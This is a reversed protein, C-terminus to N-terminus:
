AAESMFFNLRFNFQCIYRLLPKMNIFYIKSKINEPIVNMISIYNLQLM